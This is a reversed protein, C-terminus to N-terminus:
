TLEPVSGVLDEEVWQELWHKEKQMGGVTEVRTVLM